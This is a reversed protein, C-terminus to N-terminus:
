RPAGALIGLLSRTLNRKERREELKTQVYHGGIMVVPAVPLLQALPLLPVLHPILLSAAKTNSANRTLPKCFM